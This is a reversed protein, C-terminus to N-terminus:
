TVWCGALWSFTLEPDVTINVTVAVGTVVVGTVPDSVYWHCNFSVSMSGGGAPTDPVVVLVRVIVLTWSLLSPIYLHTTVLAAPLVVQVAALSVTRSHQQM